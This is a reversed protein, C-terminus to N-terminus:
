KTHVFRFMYNWNFESLGFLKRLPYKHLKIRSKWQSPIHFKLDSAKREYIPLPCLLYNIDSAIHTWQSNHFPMVLFNIITYLLLFLEEELKGPGRWVGRCNSCQGSTCVWVWISSQFLDPARKYYVCYWVAYALVTNLRYLAATNLSM